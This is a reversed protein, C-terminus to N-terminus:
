GSAKVENVFREIMEGTRQAFDVIAAQENDRYAAMVDATQRGLEAFM